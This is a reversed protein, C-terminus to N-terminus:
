GSRDGHLMALLRPPTAPLRHVRVGTADAIANIIAPAVAVTACEAAGKAGLGASPDGMEIMLTVVEPTERANPLRYQQFSETEGPVFEEKLAFGLGMSVAGEIQGKLGLPYVVRGVDHVAIVRLVRVEGTATDVEVEAVHTATVYVLYPNASASLADPM